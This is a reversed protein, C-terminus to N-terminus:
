SSSEAMSPASASAVLQEHLLRLKSRTAVAKKTAICLQLLIPLAWKRAVVEEYGLDRLTQVYGQRAARLAMTRHEPVVGAIVGAVRPIGAIAACLFAEEDSSLAM